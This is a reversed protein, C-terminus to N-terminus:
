KSCRCTSLFWYNCDQPCSNAGGVASSRNWKLKAVKSSVVINRFQKQKDQFHKETKEERTKRSETEKEAAPSSLKLTCARNQLHSLSIKWVRTTPLSSLSLCVRCLIFPQFQPHPPLALGTGTSCPLLANRNTASDVCRGEAYYM